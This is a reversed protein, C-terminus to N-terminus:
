RDLGGMWSKLWAAMASVRRRSPARRKASREILAGISRKIRPSIRHDKLAEEFTIMMGSSRPLNDIDQALSAEGQFVTYNELEGAMALAIRTRLCKECVSCNGTPTRNEWCVRLNNRLMPEGAIGMLKENRQREEGFHVIRLNASSWHEDIMWHSGWPKDRKRPISSSVIFQGIAGGLLHGVAALAGGHTREWSAGSAFLPHEKLNTRIVIPKAGIRSAAQNLTDRFANFRVEDDWTMDFGMTFVLYDIKGPYRLLSYFSDVGGSFSLATERFSAVAPHVAETGQPPIEPYGWWESTVPLIRGVNAIWTSDLPAEIELAEGHHLTPILLASAFAEPSPRLEIEASEFWISQGMVEVSVRHFGNNTSTHLNNIKM